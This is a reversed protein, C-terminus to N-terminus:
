VILYLSVGVIGDFISLGLGLTSLIHPFLCKSLLSNFPRIIKFLVKTVKKSLVKCLKSAQESSLRISSDVDWLEAM